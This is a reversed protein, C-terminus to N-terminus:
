EFRKVDLEEPIPRGSVLHDVLQEAVYHSFFLGKSNMGTYICLKENDPHRGIVPLRNPTTVRVGALQDKKKVRGAINPFMMELKGKIIEYAAQTTELGSFNHEYTAGVIIDRAGRRMSYGRASVAHQWDLDEEAEFRVIQGKVLELPLHTWAEFEPTRYGAAIIVHRATVKRDGLHIHFQKEDRHYEFHPQEYKCVVGSERLFRRYTNLYRDVYVTFGCDLYLGGFNSAIEPNLDAIEDTDMWRIWGKPWDYKDLAKKFNKALKKTIAPRVVGSDSILDDRGTKDMLEELHTKLTDYCDKAQWCMKARLGTAPNVQGGPAGPADESVYPDILLVKKDRKSLINTLATGSIGAGFVAAYFDSM